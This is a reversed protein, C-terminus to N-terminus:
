IYHTMVSPIFRYSTMMITIALKCLPENQGPSKWLKYLATTLQATTGNTHIDGGGLVRRSHRGHGNRLRFNRIIAFNHISDKAASVAPSEPKTEINGIDHWADINCEPM